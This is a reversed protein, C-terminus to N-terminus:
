ANIRIMNQNRNWDMYTFTQPNNITKDWQETYTTQTAPNVYRKAPRYKQTKPKQIRNIKM